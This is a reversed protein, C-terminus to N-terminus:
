MERPISEYFKLWENCFGTTNDNMPFHGSNPIEIKRMRSISDFVPHDRSRDGHFYAAACTLRLFKRILLGSAVWSNLSEASRYLAEATTSEVDAYGDGFNRFTNEISAYFDTHFHDFPVSLITRSIVENGAVLNGEVNAFSSLTSLRALPLLLTIAGAMSHAIVHLNHQDAYLRLIQECVEAQDTLTFAFSHPARTGGFGPLDVALLSLDSLGAFSFIPRFTEKSCGLGHILFVM